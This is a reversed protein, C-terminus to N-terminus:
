LDQSYNPTHLFDGNTFGGYSKNNRKHSGHGAIRFHSHMIKYEKSMEHYADFMRNPSEDKSGRRSICRPICLLIHKNAHFHIVDECMAIQHTNAAPDQMIMSDARFQEGLGCTRGETAVFTKNSAAFAKKSSQSLARVEKEFAEIAPVQCSQNLQLRRRDIILPDQSGIPREMIYCLHLLSM